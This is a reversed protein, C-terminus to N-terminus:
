LLTIIPYKLKQLIKIEFTNIETKLRLLKVLSTELSTLHLNRERYM